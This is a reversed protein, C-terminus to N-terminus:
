NGAAAKVVEETIKIDGRGDPLLKMVEADFRKAIAAVAGDAIQINEKHLLLELIDKGSENNEAAVEVLDDTLVVDKSLELLLGMVYSGSKRNTVTAKILAPVKIDYKRDLLLQMIGQDFNSALAHVAGETFRVNGRRVLMKM